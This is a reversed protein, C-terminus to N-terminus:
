FPLESPDVPTFDDPHPTYNCDFNGDIIEGEIQYVTKGRETDLHYDSYKALTGSLWDQYMTETITGDNLLSYIKEFSDIFGAFVDDVIRIDAINVRYGDFGTEYHTDFQASIKRLVSLMEMIETVPIFRDGISGYGMPQGSLGCLWDLSVDLAGAILIANDLTPSKRKSEDHSEYNSLTTAGINVKESLAKLTLGAKQRAERLRNPFVKLNAMNDSEKM